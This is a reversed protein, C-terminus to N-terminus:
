GGCPGNCDIECFCTEPHWINPPQCSDPPTSSCGCECTTPDPLGGGPCSVQPCECQCTDVNFTQAGTCTESVCNGGCCSLGSGCSTGDDLPACQGSTPDCEQCADCELPQCPQDSNTPDYVECPSCKPVCEVHGL